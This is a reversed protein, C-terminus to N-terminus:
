VACRYRRCVVLVVLSLLTSWDLAGGGHSANSIPTEAYAGVAVSSSSYGSALAIASLTTTSSIQLAATYVPSSTTPATGDTTYHIV